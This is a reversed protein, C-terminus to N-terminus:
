GTVRPDDTGGEGEFTVERIKEQNEREIQYVEM